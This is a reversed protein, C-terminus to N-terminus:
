FQKQARRRNGEAPQFTFSGDGSELDYKSGFKKEGLGVSLATHEDTAVSSPGKGSVRAKRPDV